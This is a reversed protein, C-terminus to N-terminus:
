ILSRVSAILEEKNFPKTLYMEAGQQMGWRKDLPTNKSSILIIPIDRSQDLSKLRRCIQFGNQKPLIVDLVVCQPREQLVKEIAEDGDVATIVDFGSERLPTAILTLDTWSDDVVLVKPGPM